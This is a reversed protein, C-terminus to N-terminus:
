QAPPGVHAGGVHRKKSRPHPDLRARRILHAARRFPACSVFSFFGGRARNKGRVDKEVFDGDVVTESQLESASGHSQCVKRVRWSVMRQRRRTQAPAYVMSVVFFRSDIAGTM